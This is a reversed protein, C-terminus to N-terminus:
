HCRTRARRQNRRTFVEVVLLHANTKVCRKAHQQLEFYMHEDGYETHQVDVSIIQMRFQKERHDERIHKSWRTQMFVLTEHCAESDGTSVWIDGGPTGCNETRHEGPRTSIFRGRQCTGTTTTRRPTNPTRIKDQIETSTRRPQGGVEQLSTSGVLGRECRRAPLSKPMPRDSNVRPDHYEDQNSTM